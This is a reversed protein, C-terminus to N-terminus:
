RTMARFASLAAPVFVALLGASWLLSTIVPHSLPLSGAPVPNPNGMLDRMATVVASVPNWESLVGLFGTRRQVPVFAASLLVMPFTVLLGATSASEVHRLRLGILAGIWSFGYGLLLLLVYAAAVSWVDTHVRWGLLLCAVSTVAVTMAARTLDATTRGLLVSSMRIPLARFRDMAGGRLDNALGVGTAIAGFIVTQVCVGAMLFEIYRGGFVANFTGNFVYAFLFVFMLPQLVAFIVARPARFIKRVNRGTLTAGHTFTATRAPATM